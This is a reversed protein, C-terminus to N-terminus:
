RIFCFLFCFAYLPNVKWLMVYCDQESCVSNWYQKGCQKQDKVPNLMGGNRIRWDCYPEPRFGEPLDGQM